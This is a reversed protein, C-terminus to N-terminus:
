RLTQLLIGLLVAVGTWGSFVGRLAPAAGNMIVNAAYGNGCTSVALQVADNYTKKLGTLEAAQAPDELAASYTGMLSRTCASCSPTASKPLKHGLPLGYFYLDSPNSNRVANLYCYTNTTPDTLCGTERVLAYAQLDNLTSVAMANQDTLDQACATKLANAFWGMNAICQEKPTNTNCTGWVVSNLLTLNSQADIFESSSDLLLSMPRCSRFALANTMNKFFDFCSISSFNQTLNADFPQLFPTPLSPPTSPVTPVPANFNDTSTPSPSTSPASPASSTSALLQRPALNRHGRHPTWNLAQSALKDWSRAGPVDAFIDFAAPHLLYRTSATILVLVLPVLVVAWRTRRGIRRKEDVPPFRRTTGAELVPTRPSDDRMKPRPSPPPTFM